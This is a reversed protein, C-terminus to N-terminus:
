LPFILHRLLKDKLHSFSFCFLSPLSSALLSSLLAFGLPPPTSPIAMGLTLVTGPKAFDDDGLRMSPNPHIVPSGSGGGLARLREEHAAKIAKLDKKSSPKKHADKADKEKVKSSSRFLSM